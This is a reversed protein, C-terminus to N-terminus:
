TDSRVANLHWMSKNQIITCNDNNRTSAYTNKEIRIRVEATVDSRRPQSVNTVAAFHVHRVYVLIDNKETNPLSTTRCLSKICHHIISLGVFDITNPMVLFLSWSPATTKQSGSVTVETSRQIWVVHQLCHLSHHSTFKHECQNIKTRLAKDAHIRKPCHSNSGFRWIGRLVFSGTRSILRMSLSNLCRASSSCFCFPLFVEAEETAASRGGGTVLLRWHLLFCIAAEGDPEEAIPPRAATSSEGGSSKDLKGTV